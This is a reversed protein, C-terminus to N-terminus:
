DLKDVQNWIVAYILQRDVDLLPGNDILTNFRLSPYQKAM